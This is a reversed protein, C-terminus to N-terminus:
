ISVLFLLLVILFVVALLAIMIVSSNQDYRSDREKQATAMVVAVISTLPIKTGGGVILYHGAIKEVPTIVSLIGEACQFTIQVCQISGAKSLEQSLLRSWVLPNTNHAVTFSTVSLREENVFIAM